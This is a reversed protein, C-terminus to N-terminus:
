IVFESCGISFLPKLGIARISVTHGYIELLAKSANPKIGIRAVGYVGYFLLDRHLLIL